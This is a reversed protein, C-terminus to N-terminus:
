PALRHGTSSRPPDKAALSCTVVITFLAAPFIETMTTRLDDLYAFDFEGCNASRSFTSQGALVAIQQFKGSTLKIAPKDQPWLLTIPSDKALCVGSALVLIAALALLFRKM